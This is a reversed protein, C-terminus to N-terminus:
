QSNVNIEKEEEQEVVAIRKLKQPCDRALHGPKGCRFCLGKAMCEESSIANIRAPRIPCVSGLHGPKKCYFCIVQSRSIDMPTPGTNKPPSPQPQPRPVPNQRTTASHASVHAARRQEREEVIQMAQDINTPNRDLIVEANEWKLANVYARILDSEAPRPDLDLLISAFTNNFAHASADQRSTYLRNFAREAKTRDKYRSRLALVIEEVTPRQQASHSDLYQRLWTNATGTTGSILLLEQQQNTLEGQMQTQNKLQFLFEDISPQGFGSFPTGKFPKVSTPTKSHRPLHGNLRSLEGKLHQNEGALSTIQEEMRNLATALTTPDNVNLNSM